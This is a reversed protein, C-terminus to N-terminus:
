GTCIRLRSSSMIIKLANCTDEAINIAESRYGSIGEDVTLAVLKAPPFRRELKSLILLLAVSDKGGSLGVAIRDKPDLMRKTAITRRVKTEVSDLFCKRCLM